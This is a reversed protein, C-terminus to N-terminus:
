HIAFGGVLAGGVLRKLSPISVVMTGDDAIDFSQSENDHAYNSSYDISSPPLSYSKFKYKEFRNIEFASISGVEDDHRWELEPEGYEQTGELNSWMSEDEAVYIFSGDYNVRVTSGFEHYDGAIFPLVEDVLEYRGEKLKYVYARGTDDIGDVSADPIGIALTSNDGSLDISEIDEGNVVYPNILTQHRAFDAGDFNLVDVAIDGLAIFVKSGDSNVEIDYINSAESALSDFTGVEDWKAGNKRYANVRYITGSGYTLSAFFITNGDATVQALQYDGTFNTKDPIILSREYRDVGNFEFVHIAGTNGSCATDPALIDDSCSKFNDDTAVVISGDGSVAIKRGLTNTQNLTDVDAFSEFETYTYDPNQRYIVIENGGAVPGNDTAVLVSSDGSIAVSSGLQGTLSANRVLQTLQEAQAPTLGIKNSDYVGHSYTARLFFQPNIASSVSAIDVITDDRTLDKKIVECGDPSSASELCLDIIGTGDECETGDAACYQKDFAIDTWAVDVRNYLTTTEDNPDLAVSVTDFSFENTKGWDYSPASDGDSGGCGSLTAALIAVSLYSLNKYM